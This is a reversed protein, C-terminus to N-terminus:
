NFPVVGFSSNCLEVIYTIDSTIINIKVLLGNHINTSLNLVVYVLNSNDPDFCIDNPCVGNKMSIEYKDFMIYNKFNTKTNYVLISNNSTCAGIFINTTPHLKGGLIVDEYQQLLNNNNVIYNPFPVVLNFKVTKEKIDNLKENLIKMYNSIVKHNESINDPIDDSVTKPHLHSLDHDINYKYLGNPIGSTQSNLPFYISNEHLNVDASEAFNIKGPYKIKKYKIVDLNKYIVRNKMKDKNEKKKESNKFPNYFSKSFFNLIM